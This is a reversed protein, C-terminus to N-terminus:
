SEHFMRGCLYLSLPYALIRRVSVPMYAHIYLWLQLFSKLQLPLNADYDDDDDDVENDADDPDYLTNNHVYWKM